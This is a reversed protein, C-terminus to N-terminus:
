SEEWKEGIGRNKQMKRFNETAEREIREVLARSIIQREGFRELDLMIIQEGRRILYKKEGLKQYISDKDLEALREGSEEQMAKGCRFSFLHGEQTKPGCGLAALLIGAYIIYKGM